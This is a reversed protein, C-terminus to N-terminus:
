KYERLAVGKVAFLDIKDKSQITWSATTLMKVILDRAVQEPNQNTHNPM